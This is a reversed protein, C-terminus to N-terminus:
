IRSLAVYRRSERLDMTVGEFQPSLDFGAWFKRFIPPPKWYFVLGLRVSELLSVVSVAAWGAGFKVWNIDGDNPFCYGMSGDCLAQDDMEEHFDSLGYIGMSGFIVVGTGVAGLLMKRWQPSLTQVTLANTPVRDVLIIDPDNDGKVKVGFATEQLAVHRRPSHTKSLEIEDNKEKNRPELFLFNRSTPSVPLPGEESVLPNGGQKPRNKTEKTDGDITLISVDDHSFCPSFLDNAGLFVFLIWFYM